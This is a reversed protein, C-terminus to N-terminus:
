LVKLVTLDMLFFTDTRQSHLGSLLFYHHLSLAGNQTSYRTLYVCM